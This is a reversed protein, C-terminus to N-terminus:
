AERLINLQKELIDVPLTKDLTTRDVLDGYRQKIMEAVQLPEGVVAFASLVEDSINEVLKDWKNERTLKHLIPQLDEWGHTELVGRYAPTSGYFGIRYKIAEKSKEFEQENIGTVKFIPCHIEFDEPLRGAEKLNGQIGPVLVERLHKDTCFAHIIVGDAVQAACKQMLPGVAAMVVKPRGHENNTPTFEPTMIKHSYFKGEYNLPEELYWSDWIAHLAEVYERMQAAPGHWPMSYRKTIHPKIQSGLGLTFRGSSMANIDHGLIATVMPSRGLAVAISSILELESTEHACIALALFPDHAMESVAMGDFGLHESSQALEKIRGTSHFEREQAIGSDVKM